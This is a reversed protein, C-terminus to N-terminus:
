LISVQTNIPSVYLINIWQYISQYFITNVSYKDMKLVGMELVNM